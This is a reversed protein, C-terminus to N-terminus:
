RNQQCLALVAYATAADSMLKGAHTTPNREKNLSSCRWEGTPQQNSRLWAYGNALQRSSGAPNKAQVIQLVLGTAYGDSGQNEATGDKRAFDGLASLSWGGDLRQRALLQTVVGKEQDPTLVGGLATSAWLGWARNYLNQEHFRNRLYDRLMQMKNHDEKGGNLYGPAMKLALAATAAGFYAGKPSEWPELGFDFWAWAGKNDGNLLQEKWLNEFAQITADSPTSRGAYRDAAALIVANLVAETGISEKRKEENSSDMLAFSKDRLNNWSAVRLKTQEILKKEIATPQQDGLAHRLAGRALAYPVCTHCCVCSTKTAGTRRDAVGYCFWAEQRSDLYNAAEKWKWDPGQGPRMGTIAPVESNQRIGSRSFASARSEHRFEGSNRHGWRLFPSADGQGFVVRDSLCLMTSTLLIAHRFDFRIM